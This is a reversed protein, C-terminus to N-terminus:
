DLKLYPVLKLFNEETILPLQKLEEISNFSQHQKRYNCILGALKGKIYPHSALIGFTDTNLHIFRIPIKNKIGISPILSQFLSDNIGWVEKIQETSYFGGLKERFKIIRSALVPGIGKLKILIVSDAIDLNVFESDYTKKIQQRSAFHISDPLLIYSELELYKNNSICYMKKFDNKIRFKGGHNIYNKIVKIQKESIGLQLWLSDPLSNPNFNFYSIPNIVSDIKNSIYVSESDHKNLLELLSSIIKKDPLALPKTLNRQYCLFLIQIILICVLFFAGRRERASFNFYEKWSSKIKKKKM